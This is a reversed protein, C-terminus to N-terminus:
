KKIDNTLWTETLCVIGPNKLSILSQMLALKNRRTNVSKVSHTNLMFGNVFNPGPNTEVDNDKIILMFLWYLLGM